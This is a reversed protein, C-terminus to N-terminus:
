TPKICVNVNFNGAESEFPIGVIPIAQSPWNIRHDSGNVVSPLSINIDYEELDGKANGAIINVIEGVLDASQNDFNADDVETGLKKMVTKLTKANLSIVVVGQMEGSMGIVASVDWQHNKGQQIVYPTKPTIQIQFM